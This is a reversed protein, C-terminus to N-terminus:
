PLNLMIKRGLSPYNMVIIGCFKVLWLSMQKSKNKALKLDKLLKLVSFTFFSVQSLIRDIISVAIKSRLLLTADM